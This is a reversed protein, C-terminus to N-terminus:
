ARVVTAATAACAPTETSVTYLAKALLGPRTLATSSTDMTPSSSGTGIISRSNTCRFM